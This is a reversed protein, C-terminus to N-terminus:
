ELSYDVSTFCVMLHESDSSVAVLQFAGDPGDAVLQFAGYFFNFNSSFL